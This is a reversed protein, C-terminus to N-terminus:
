DSTQLLKLGAGICLGAAGMFITRGFVYSFDEFSFDPVGSHSHLGIKILMFGAAIPTVSLGSFLGAGLFSLLRRGHFAQLVHIGMLAAAPIAMLLALRTSTDEFPLWALIAVGLAIEFIRLRMRTPHGTM